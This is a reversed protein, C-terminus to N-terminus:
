ITPAKVLKIKVPHMFSPAPLGGTDKVQETKATEM